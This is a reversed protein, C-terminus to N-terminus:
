IADEIRNFVEQPTLYGVVDDYQSEEETLLGMIELLDDDGGYSYHSQIVSVINFGNEDPVLIQYSEGFADSRDDFNYDINAIDLAKALKFIATYESDIDIDLNNVDISLEVVGDKPEYLHCKHIGSISKSMRRFCLGFILQHKCNKCKIKM